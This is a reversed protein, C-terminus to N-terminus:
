LISFRGGNEFVFRSRAGRYIYMVSGESCKNFLHEGVEHHLYDPDDFAFYYKGTLPFYEKRVITYSVREKVGSDADRKLPLARKVYFYIGSPILILALVTLNIMWMGSKSVFAADQNKEWPQYIEYYVGPLVQDHQLYHEVAWYSLAISFGIMIIYVSFLLRRRSDFVALLTDKEEQTLPVTDVPEYHTKM